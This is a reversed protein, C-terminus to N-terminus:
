ADINTLTYVNIHIHVYVCVCVYVHKHIFTLVAHMTRLLCSRTILSVTIYIYMYPKYITYVTYLYKHKCTYYMMHLKAQKMDLGHLSLFLVM